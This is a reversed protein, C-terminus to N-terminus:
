SRVVWWQLGFLGLHGQCGEVSAGQASADAQGMRGEAERVWGLGRDEESAWRLQGGFPFGAGPWWGVGRGPSQARVQDVM